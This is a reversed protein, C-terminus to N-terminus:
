HGHITCNYSLDTCIFGADTCIFDIDTCNFTPIICNWMLETCKGASVGNGSSDMESGDDMGTKFMM